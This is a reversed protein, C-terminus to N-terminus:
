SRRDPDTNPNYALTTGLLREAAEITVGKREAYSEVQDRQIRGVAFYTAEPHALYLGSVSSGPWMAYSETLNVGISAEAELLDFITAKESHDPQAPYGPAP